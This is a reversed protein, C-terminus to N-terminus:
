KVRTQTKLTESLKSNADEETGIFLYFGKGKSALQSILQKGIRNKGFALVSFQIHESAKKEILKILGDETDALGNFGGDTSLIIQNFGQPKFNKEANEYAARIAKGGVTRGGCKLQQIVSIIKEQENGSTGALKITAENAYTIITIRDEVRMMKTLQIMAKQLLPMRDTGNMSSSVDILFVMNNEKYNELSFDSQEDPKVVPPIVKHVLAVTDKFIPVPMEKPALPALEITVKNNKPNFNKLLSKSKYGTHEAYLFCFGLGSHQKYEGHIDTQHQNFSEGKEIEILTNSLPQKTASDITLIQLDFELPKHPSTFSPCAVNAFEDFSLIEGKYTLQVPTQSATHFVPISVNFKGKTKPLYIIEIFGTEGPDISKLPFRVEFEPPYHQKLLFIKQISENRVEITDIRSIWSEVKQFDFETRSFHLGDHDTQSFSLSVESLIIFVFLYVPLKHM